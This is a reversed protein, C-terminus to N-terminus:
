LREFHAPEDSHLITLPTSNINEVEGQSRIIVTPNRYGEVTVNELLIRDFHTADMFIIDEFGKRVNILSDKIVMTLPEKEDGSIQIPLGVGTIKCNEYTISTLSRNCCWIHNGFNLSFMTDPNEFTCNRILIDGPAKRIEARFDCYYLFGTFMNHRCTDDTPANNAKQETTLNKRFGFRSPAYSHCNEILVHNGGFRLASCATDFLCNRIIVDNNDFGAVCDDGTYFTCNEILVNDCTRIDFGDHGGYVTLNRATINQTTFLAHAWNGSDTITYGQLTVNECYWMNIPHPGRYNEEGIADYCNRGNIFSGPEGTITINKAHIARIIANNWRSYVYASRPKPQKGPDLIADTLPELSDNLYGTYDEPNTSGELIAGSQLYLEVNSRLRLGGTRFIGAPITVRGGGNSFCTDIARQIAETQLRDCVRAGFDTILYNNM